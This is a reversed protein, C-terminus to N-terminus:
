ENIPVTSGDRRPGCRHVERGDFHVVRMLPSGGKAVYAIRPKADKSIGSFEAGCELCKWRGGVFRV